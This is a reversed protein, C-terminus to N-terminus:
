MAKEKQQEQDPSKTKRIFLGIAFAMTALIAGVFFADHLGAVMGKVVEAPNMPDQSTEMYGKAGANMISIFLATGIAGAVQQLTNMIATGHPYLHRPLQNLGTTQAPMMVLSIGLMMLVMLFIIYGNSWTSEIGTFLWVSIAMMALGPIVLVRPGFKDFLAGSIPSMIGNVISGPMMTLGAALATMLMVQQLFMPLMIMTAFMSMMLILMLVTVLAFMPYRFARIDLIPAKM